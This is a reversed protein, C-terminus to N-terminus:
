MVAPMVLEDTEVIGGARRAILDAYGRHTLVWFRDDRVAEVVMAAIEAAPRRPVHTVLPVERGAVGGPRLAASNERLASVTAGPCLVSVGISAGEARLDHALTESLGVVAFKSAVYMASGPFAVLGAVSATNVVHGPEGRAIMGPVFANIGHVVGGVNVGFLWSWEADTFEWAKGPMQVGANNCLIHVGGFREVARAALEDVQERSSVDTPVVLTEVGFESTLRGAAAAAGEGNVDALVVRMGEAAFRAGLAYGIGSGAGTVVAVRGQLEDITLGKKLLM